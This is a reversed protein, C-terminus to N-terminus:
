MNSFELPSGKGPQQPASGQSAAGLGFVLDELTSLVSIGGIGDRVEVGLTDRGVEVGFREPNLIGVGPKMPSSVPLVGTTPLEVVIPLSPNGIPEVNTLVGAGRHDVTPHTLPSLWLLLKHIYSHLSSYMILKKDDSLKTESVDDPYLQVVRDIEKRIMGTRFVIEEFTAVGDFYQM